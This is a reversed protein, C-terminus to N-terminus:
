YIGKTRIIQPSLLYQKPFNRNLPTSLVAQRWWYSERRRWQQYVPLLKKALEFQPVVRKTLIVFYAKEQKIPNPEKIKLNSFAEPHNIAAAGRGKGRVTHWGEQAVNICQINQDQCLRGHSHHQQAPTPTRFSTGFKFGLSGISTRGGLLCKAGRSCKFVLVPGQAIYPLTLFDM